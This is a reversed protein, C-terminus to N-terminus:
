KKDDKDEGKKRIYEIADAPFVLDRLYEHVHLQKPDNCSESGNAESQARYDEMMGKFLSAMSPPTYTIANTGANITTQIQEDNDGGTAIIPFRNGIISRVYRVLEATNKGGSVNLIRAGANIKGVIDDNKSVVTAIIPIDLVNYM